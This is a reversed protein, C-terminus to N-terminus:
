IAEEDPLRDAWFSKACFPCTNRYASGKHMPSWKRDFVSGCMPCRTKGQPRKRERNTVWISFVSMGAVFLIIGVIYLTWWTGTSSIFEKVIYAEETRGGEFYAVARITHEGAPYDDTKFTWRFPEETATAVLAEDLYFEVREAGDAGRARATFRGKIRNGFSSGFDRNLRLEIGAAPSLLALAM